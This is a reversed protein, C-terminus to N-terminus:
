ITLQPNSRLLGTFLIVLLLTALVIFNQFSKDPRLPNYFQSRDKYSVWQTTLESVGDLQYISVFITKGYIGSLSDANLKLFRSRKILSSNVFLYFDTKSKIQLFNQAPKEIGTSFHITNISQGQYKEFKRDVLIQWKSKLDDNVLLEKETINLL